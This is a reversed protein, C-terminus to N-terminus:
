IKKIQIKIPREDIKIEESQLEGHEIKEALVNTKIEEGFTKFVETLLEDKTSYVVEIKDEITLKLDKRIQNISRVIERILGQKKLEASIETNLAVKLKGDEKIIWRPDAVNGSMVKNVNLEDAIIGEAGEALKCGSVSFESLVQRVKIGSEARLSLGMEVIKRIEKM